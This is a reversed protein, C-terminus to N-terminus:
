LRLAVLADWKHSSNLGGLEGIFGALTFLFLRLPRLVSLLLFSRDFSPTRSHLIMVWGPQPGCPSILYSSIPLAVLSIFGGYPTSGFNALFGLVVAM